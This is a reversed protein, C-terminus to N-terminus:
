YTVCADPRLDCHAVSGALERPLAVVSRGRASDSELVAKMAEPINKPSFSTALLVRVDAGGVVFHHELVGPAAEAQGLREARLDAVLAFLVNGYIEWNAPVLLTAGDGGHEDAFRAIEDALVHYRQIRRELTAHYCFFSGNPEKPASAHRENYARYLVEPVLLNCLIAVGTVAIVGRRGVRGLALTGALWAVAPAVVYFHRLIPSPQFLWFALTPGLLAAAIVLGAPLRPREKARRPRGDRLVAAGGVVALLVTGVGIGMATWPVTRLAVRLSFTQVFYEAFSRAFRTPAGSVAGSPGPISKEVFAYAALAFALIASLLILDTKRRRSFLASAYLAPVVALIEFRMIVSAAALLTTAVLRVSGILSRRIGGYTLFSLLFLLAAPTIPHFYTGLEWALPSSIFLLMSAFSVDRSMTKRALLYLPWISFTASLLGIWNLFLITGAPSAGRLFPTLLRFVLYIGPGTQRGYLMCDTLSVHPSLSKAMGAAMVMSDAEGMGGRYLFLLRSVFVAASLLM